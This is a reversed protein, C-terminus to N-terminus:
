STFVEETGIPRSSTNKFRQEIILSLRSKNDNWFFGSKSMKQAAARIKEATQSYHDLNMSFLDGVLEDVARQNKESLSCHHPSREASPTTMSSWTMCIQPGATAPLSKSSSKLLRKLHPLQRHNKPEYGLTSLEENASTRM